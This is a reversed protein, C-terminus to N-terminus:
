YKISINHSKLYETPTMGEVKRFTTFFSTKKFGCRESLATLTYKRYEENALMRKFEELRFRNVFDYYNDKMYLSFIQSLKSPSIGLELAIDNRKLEPNLYLKRSEMLLTMREVIGKCETEDLRVRQYKPNKTEEQSDEQSQQEEVMEMIAEEMEDRESLLAKTNRRYRLWFTVLVAVVVTLILEFVFALSPYVSVSYDNQSGLAGALRVSLQHKGLFLNGLPTETGEKIIHWQGGDVSYEFLRGSQQVFDDLIVAIGIDESWFNWDLSVSREVNALACAASSLLRGGIRIRCLRSKYDANKEWKAIDDPSVSFLGNNTAIWMTGDSAMEMKNVLLGSLGDAQCFQSVHEMDYATRMLGNDTAIWYHGRGDDLMVSCRKDLIYEPVDITRFDRMAADTEYVAFDNHFLMRGDHEMLGKLHRERNFFGKPFNDTEFTFSPTCLSLGLASTIWVNGQSDPTISSITGGIIQSNRETFHRCQGHGDIVFLGDSTGIWISGGSLTLSVVNAKDLSLSFVQRVVRMTKPDLLKLGGDYTGIYFLDGFREIDTVIHAGDLEDPKFHRTEKSKRNIFTFGDFTGIICVDDDMYFSRVGFGVAMYDGISFPKFLRSSRQTYALGHRAMGIWDIGHRDKTYYYVANTPIHHRGTELTGFHEVISDNRSDVVYAGSGDTGIYVHRGSSEMSTIINGIGDIRRLSHSNTEFRYLGDNKTGVYIVNGVIAFQGFSLDAPKGDTITATSVKGSSPDYCHINYRTFFYVLGSDAKRIHRVAKDFGINVKGSSIRKLQKGDYCYLGESSGVYLDKGDAFLCLPKEIEPLIHRFRESGRRLEVVGDRTASYITGDADECIDICLNHQRGCVSIDYVDICYGDLVNIGYGAAIWSRGDSAKFVKGISNGCLGDASTLQCMGGITNSAVTFCAGLWLMMILLRIKLNRKM